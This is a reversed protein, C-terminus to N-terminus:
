HARYFQAAAGGTPVTYPSTAGAVDQYTGDVTSSSQLKGTFTITVSGNQRSISVAARVVGQAANPQYALLSGTDTSDNILSRSGDAVIAPNVVTWECGAGGGGQFYLLRLPYAGAAPVSFGFDVHSMGKGYDAAGIIPNADAGISATLTGNTLWWDRQGFDGNVNLSPITIKSSLGGGMVYPLGNAPKNLEIFGVAGNTQAIYALVSDDNQGYLGGDILAIKGTLNITGGLTYNNSSVFVVPATVPTVPLSASFGNNGYNTTSAVAAVDTNIGTGTVHLAQRTVDHGESLRFGDDSSVGMVYFGASPFVLWSDLSAALNDNRGTIGPIGPLAYNLGFDGGSGTINFDVANTWLFVNNTYAPGVDGSSSATDVVNSGYWPFYLGALLANMSDAQNPLGDGTDGVTDPDLQTVALDFGPETKNVGSVPVSQSANLAVNYTMVSFSWANSHTLPTNGNDSWTLTATHNGPTLLSSLLWKATTVSGAKSTVAAPAAAGDVQLNLSSGNVATNGDTLQVLVQDPRAGNQGIYPNIQSVYAPLSPGAYYATIGTTNTTSPDNILVKTGDDQVTFWELNAGNGAEGNGNEWMLRVPYIGANTVAISFLIDSSGKGGDYQGLVLSLRDKPNKGETVSFGDDSNVGMRYVGPSSFKLYTLVELASSGNLGNAGPIGPFLSDAYGNATTFDGADGGGTSTAPTVNFNLVGTFDIYGGDTASSLDANNAGHLGALQEDAWYVHNPEIGSQWPLIKFGVKSTDVGTVADSGPLTSYSPTVFTPAGTITNGNTDKATVSVTHTSGAVLLTPFGNYTITTVAGNKTVSSATIAAGDLSLTVPKTTDIVSSGSDTIAVSFGAPQGTAQGVLAVAAPITTIKINDVHQNQWNDGTRGAFVLQGASPFYATQYNSLIESGKWFVSLQRNTELVVKLHAWCLNTFSGSGDYAGTQLSTPDTCSGNQTTMPAQLVLTGDVRVSIAIIDPGISQDAENCYPATGGSNWADFGISIGTTTGEEPLNAECNPGTAFGTPAGTQAASVLVPDGARAYNVSFGDAPAQNGNGIRFDAEFTFAQVVEGNDFDSFVIQSGQHAASTVVLYGDNANTASGAGSDPQWSANGFLQLQGSATPDSNFDVTATGAIAASTILASAALLTIVRLHAGARLPGSADRQKQLLSRVASGDTEVPSTRKPKM